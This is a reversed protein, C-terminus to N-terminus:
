NGVAVRHAILQTLSDCFEVGLILLLHLLSQRFVRLGANKRGRTRLVVGILHGGGCLIHLRGDVCLHGVPRVHEGNEERLVHRVLLM